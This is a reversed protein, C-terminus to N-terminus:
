MLFVLRGRQMLKLDSYKELKLTSKSIIDCLIISLMLFYRLSESNTSKYHSDRSPSLM